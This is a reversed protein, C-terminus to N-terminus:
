LPQVGDEDEDDDVSDDVDMAFDPDFEPHPDEAAVEVDAFRLSMERHDIMISHKESGVQFTVKWHPLGDSEEDVDGLSTGGLGDDIQFLSTSVTGPNCALWASLELLHDRSEDNTLELESIQERLELAEQSMRLSCAEMMGYVLEQNNQLVKKFAAPTALRDPMRSVFTDWVRLAEPLGTAAAQPNNGTTLALDSLKDAVSNKAATM